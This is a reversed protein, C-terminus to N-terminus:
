ENQDIMNTEILYCPGAMYNTLVFIIAYELKIDNGVSEEFSHVFRNREM